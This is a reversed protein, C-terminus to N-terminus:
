GPSPASIRRGRSTSLFRIAGPIINVTAPLAGTPEGDIHFPVVGNSDLTIMTGPTHNVGRARTLSSTVLHFGLRVSRLVTTPPVGVVDFQADRPDAAEAVVSGFGAAGVNAIVVTSYGGFASGDVHATILPQDYAAVAKVIQPMNATLGAVGMLGSRKANIAHIVVADLGAGFWLLFVQEGGDHQVRGVDLPTAEITGLAEAMAAPDSECDLAQTAVNATGAPLFSLEPLDAAPLGRAMLGNLVENLTGDGGVAIVRDVQGVCGEAM